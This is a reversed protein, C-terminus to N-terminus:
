IDFNKECIWYNDNACQADNWNRESDFNQIEVCDENRAKFHNPEGFRWYSQTLATGDVWKWSGEQIRDTLGIWARKQFKRTFQEEERSNIIVLDAGQYQCFYQSSQWSKQTTSIYYFSGSFYVWQAQAFKAFDSLKKTLENKETTLGLKEFICTTLEISLQSKEVSLRQSKAEIGSNTRKLGDRENTLSIQQSTCTKLQRKLDDREITLSRSTAERAVNIKKLADREATLTNRQLVSM